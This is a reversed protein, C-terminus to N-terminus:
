ENIRTARISVTHPATRKIKVDASLKAVYGQASTGESIITPTYNATPAQLVWSVQCNINSSLQPYDQKKLQFQIELNTVGEPIVIGFPSGNMVGWYWYPWAEISIETRSDFDAATLDPHSVSFTQTIGAYVPGLAFVDLEDDTYDPPTTQRDTLTVTYSGDAFAKNTFGDTWGANTRVEFIADNLGAQAIAQAEAAQVQNNMTQIEVTKLQILGTVAAALLAVIFVTLM